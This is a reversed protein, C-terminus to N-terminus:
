AMKRVTGHDPPLEALLEAMTRKLVPHRLDPAIEALPELVFRRRHMAPHPITLGRAGVILGNFLVIDIDLTRPGKQQERRRGFSDEIALAGALLRRPMLSTRLAVICNLFWPQSVDTDVPETEYVSSVADIDGLSQLAQIAARLNAERDGLNSGLSLYATRTM